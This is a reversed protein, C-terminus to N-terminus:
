KAAAAEAEGTRQELKLLKMLGRIEDKGSISRPIVAAM